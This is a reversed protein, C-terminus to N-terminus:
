TKRWRGRTPTSRASPAGGFQHLPGLVGLAKPVRVDLYHRARLRQGFVADIRDRPRPTEASQPRGSSGATM